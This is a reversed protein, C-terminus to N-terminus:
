PYKRTLPGFEHNLRDYSRASSLSVSGPGLENTILRWVDAPESYKWEKGRQDIVIAYDRFENPTSRTVPSENM